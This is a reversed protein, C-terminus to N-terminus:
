TRFHTLAVQPEMELVIRGGSFVRVFSDTASIAIACARTRATVAAAAVHRAGLGRPVEVDVGSAALFTGASRVLGDGRIVFAGDLKSLEILMEHTDPDLLMCETESHGQLPNLVLQRSGELVADSDGIALLAGMHQGGRAVTGIRCALCLAAELVNPRIGNTLRVLEGLAIEEADPDVGTVLILDGGGCLSRGLAVVVLDGATLRGASLAVSVLHRAQRYKDAVRASLRLVDIGDRTFADYTEASPTAALVRQGESLEDELGTRKFRKSIANKAIYVIASERKVRKQVYLAYWLASGGLFAGTM